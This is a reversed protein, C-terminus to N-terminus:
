GPPNGARPPLVDPDGVPVEIRVSGADAFTVTVPYTRGARLPERLRSLTIDARLTDAFARAPAVEGYHSVLTFGDPIRPDGAIRHGSAVPSSVSVLRDSRDGTNVVSLSLPADAGAAYVEDGARPLQAAFRANRIELAGVSGNANGATGTPDATNVTPTTTGCAALVLLALAGIAWSIRAPTPYVSM